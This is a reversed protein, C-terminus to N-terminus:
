RIEAEIRACSRPGPVMGDGVRGTGSVDGAPVARSDSLDRAAAGVGSADCAAVGAFYSAHDAKPRNPISNGPLCLM